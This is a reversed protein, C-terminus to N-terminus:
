GAVLEYIELMGVHTSLDSLREVSGFMTSLESRKRRRRFRASSERIRGKRVSRVAALACMTVSQLILMPYGALDREVSRESRWPTFDSHEAARESVEM